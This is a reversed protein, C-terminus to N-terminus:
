RFIRKKMRVLKPPTIDVDVVGIGQLYGQYFVKCEITHPGTYSCGRQTSEGLLLYERHGIDNADFSQNGRNRVTWFVRSDNPFEEKNSIAFTLSDGKHAKVKHDDFNEIHSGHKNFRSVVIAPFKAVAPLNKIIDGDAIFNVQPFYHEFLDSYYLVRQEPSEEALCLKLLKYLEDIKKRCFVEDEYSFRVIDQGNLPNEVKLVSSLSECINIGTNIFNSEEGDASYMNNAVLVNIALSPIKKNDVGRWKLNAWGKIYRVIRKLQARDKDTCFSNTLWGQIEKPDSDVWGNDTALKMGSSTVSYIPLDITLFSPLKLGECANKSDQLKCENHKDCFNSLADKLATKVDKSDIGEEIADLFIYVGVDLDFAYERSPPLILTHSKHSGQIWFKVDCDFMSKLEPRLFEILQEKWSLAKEKIGKSIKLRNHLTDSVDSQDYFFDDCNNM